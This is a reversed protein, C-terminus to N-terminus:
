VYIFVFFFSKGDQEKKILMSFTNIITHCSSFNVYRPLTTHKQISEQSVLDILHCALLMCDSINCKLFSLATEDDSNKLPRFFKAFCSYTISCTYALLKIDVESWKEVNKCLEQHSSCIKKFKSDIEQFIFCQISLKSLSSCAGLVKQEKRKCAKPINQFKMLLLKFISYDNLYKLLIDIWTQLIKYLNIKHEYGSNYRELHSWINLLFEELKKMDINHNNHCFRVLAINVKEIFNEVTANELLLFEVSMTRLALALNFDIVSSNKETRLADNWFIICM